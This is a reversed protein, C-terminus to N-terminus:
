PTCHSGDGEAARLPPRGTGGGQAAPHDAQCGVGPVPPTRSGPGDHGATAGGPAGGRGDGDYEKGTPNLPRTQLLPVKEEPKWSAVEKESNVLLQPDVGERGCLQLVVVLRLPLSIRVPPLARPTSARPQLPGRTTRVTGWSTAYVEAPWSRESYLTNKEM